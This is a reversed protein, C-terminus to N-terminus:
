RLWPTRPRDLSMEAVGHRDRPSARTPWPRGSPWPGRAAATQITPLDGLMAIRRHGHAVLHEVALQSGLANDVTVSDADVGNPRRDVFVVPLGIRLEDSLYDATPPRCSCSATWAAGCWARSWSASM